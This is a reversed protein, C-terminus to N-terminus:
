AANRTETTIAQVSNTDYDYCIIIYQNGHILIIPYRGLLDSYTTVAEKM